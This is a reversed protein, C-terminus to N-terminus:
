YIEQALRHVKPSCVEEFGQSHFGDPLVFVQYDKPTIESFLLDPRISLGYRSTVFEHFGATTVTAKRIHERYHTWAFVNLIAVAKLYEFWQAFFLLVKVTDNQM